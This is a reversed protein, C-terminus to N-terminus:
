ENKCSIILMPHARVAKKELAQEKEHMAVDKENDDDEDLLVCLVM